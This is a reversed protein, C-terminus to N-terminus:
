GALDVGGEAAEGWAEGVADPPGGLRGLARRRGVKVRVVQEYSSADIGGYGQLIVTRYIHESVVLALPEATRELRRKVPTADLLRFALDLDAGFCGERDFHVDGAHVVARLRLRLEPCRANHEVLQKGLNPIFVCLLLTKPAQDVPHLLILVGDGRDILPDHYAALESARLGEHVMDYMLRRIRAKERNNRATSGQIDLAVLNRHCPHGQPMTM